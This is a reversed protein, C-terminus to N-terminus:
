NYEEYSIHDIGDEILFDLELQVPRRKKAYKWDEAMILESRLKKELQKLERIIEWPYQITEEGTYVDIKVGHGNGFNINVTKKKM